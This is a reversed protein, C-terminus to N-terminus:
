RVSYSIGTTTIRSNYKKWVNSILLLFVLSCVGILLVKVLDFVNVNRYKLFPKM